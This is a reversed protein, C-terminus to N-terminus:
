KTLNSSESHMPNKILIIQNLFILKLSYIDIIDGYKLIYQQSNMSVNNVYIIAKNKKLVFNNNDHYIKAIFEDSGSINYYLNCDSGNGITLNLNDNYNYISFKSDLLDCVYILYNIDNRRLCYFNNSRIAKEKVLINNDVIFVDDTSYLFWETGRAEINILKTEEDENEDFSFSGSVDQPLTFNLLKDSLYLYIKM